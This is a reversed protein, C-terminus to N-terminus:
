ACILWIQCLLRKRRRSMLATPKPCGCPSSLPHLTLRFCFFTRPVMKGGFPGLLRKRRRSMLATPNHCGCPSSLPHLTLRSCFITRPVMKGGFPGVFASQASSVSFGHTRPSGRRIYSFLGARLQAPSSRIYASSPVRVWVSVCLFRFRAHRGIGDCGCFM